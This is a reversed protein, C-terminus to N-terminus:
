KSISVLIPMTHSDSPPETPKISLPAAQQFTNKAYAVKEFIM